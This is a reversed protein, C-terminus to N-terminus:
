GRHLRQRLSGDRWLAALEIAFGLGLGWVSVIM